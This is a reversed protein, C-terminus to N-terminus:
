REKQRGERGSWPALQHSHHEQKPIAHCTHLFLPCMQGVAVVRGSGHLQEEELNLILGVDTVGTQGGRGRHGGHRNKSGGVSAPFLSGGQLKERSPCARRGENVFVM